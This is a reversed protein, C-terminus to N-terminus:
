PTATEAAPEPVSRLLYLTAILFLAAAGFAAEYGAWRALFGSGVGALIWGVGALSNYLGLAFGRNESRALRSTLAVGSLQFFSWTFGYVAFATILLPVSPVTSSLALAIAAGVFLMLRLSLAARHVLLNGAEKIRQTALPYALVVAANQVAFYLFVSSAPIGFREALLLPLPIGFMGLGIYALLTAVLFRKTGTRLTGAARRRFVHRLLTVVQLRYYLHFPGFRVLEVLFNGVSLALGRFARDFFRATRAPITRAAVYAAGLGGMGILAFTSRIATAEDTLRTGVALVASGFLLGFVWGLAGVQNMRGIKTEWSGEEENEIVILVTVSANAVWFFNLAMNLAVLQEFSRAFAMLGLVSGAAAYSLLVFPKRRHAADSLRGWVLSGVVGVFSVLSSLVGLSDVSRALVTRLALPVLVSSTGLVLNALGVAAYWPEGEGWWERVRRRM